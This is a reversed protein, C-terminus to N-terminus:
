HARQCIPLSGRPGSAQQMTDVKESPPVEEAPAAGTPMIIAALDHAGAVVSEGPAGFAVAVGAGDGMILRAGEYSGWAGGARAVLGDELTAAAPLQCNGGTAQPCGSPWCGGVGVSDSAGGEGPGVGCGCGCCGRTALRLGGGPMICGCSSCRSCARLTGAKACMFPQGAVGCLPWGPSEATACAWATATAATCAAGVGSRM